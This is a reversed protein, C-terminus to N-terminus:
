VEYRRRAGQAGWICANHTPHSYQRKSVNLPKRSHLFLGSRLWIMDTWFRRSWPDSVTAPMGQLSLHHRLKWLTTLFMCCGGFVFFIQCFVIHSEFSLINVIQDKSSFTQWGSSEHIKACKPFVWLKEQSVPLTSLDSFCFLFGIILVIFVSAWM